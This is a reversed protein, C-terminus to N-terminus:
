FPSASSPDYGYDLLDSPEPAVDKDPDGVPAEVERRDKGQQVGLGLACREADSSLRNSEKLSIAITRLDSNARERNGDGLRQKMNEATSRSVDLLVKVATLNNTVCDLGKGDRAKRRIDDDLKSLRKLNASQADNASQAFDVMEQPSVSGTREIDIDVGPADAAVGAASAALGLGLVLTWVGHRGTVLSTRMM